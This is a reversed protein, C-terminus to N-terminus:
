QLPTPDLFEFSPARARRSADSLWEELKCIASGDNAFSMVVGSKLFDDTKACVEGPLLLSPSHSPRTVRRRPSLLQTDRRATAESSCSRREAMQRHEPHDAPQRPGSSKARRPLSIAQKRRSLGAM